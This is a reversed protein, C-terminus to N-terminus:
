WATNNKQEPDGAFLRATSRFQCKTSVLANVIDLLATFM